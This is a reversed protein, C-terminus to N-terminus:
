GEDDDAVVVTIILTAAVSVAAIMIFDAVVANYTHLVCYTFMREVVYLNWHFLLDLLLNVNM